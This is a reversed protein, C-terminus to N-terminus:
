RLMFFPSFFFSSYHSSPPFFIKGLLDCKLRLSVRRDRRGERKRKKVPVVFSIASNTSALLCPSRVATVRRRWPLAFGPLVMWTRM